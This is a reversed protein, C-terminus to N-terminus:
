SHNEPGFLERSKRFVPGQVREFVDILYVSTLERYLNKIFCAGFVIRKECHIFYVFNPFAILSQYTVISSYLSLRSFAGVFMWIKPANDLTCSSIRGRYHCMGKLM